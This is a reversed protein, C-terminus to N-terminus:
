ESSWCGPQPRARFRDNATQCAAQQLGGPTVGWPLCRVDM